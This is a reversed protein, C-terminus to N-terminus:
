IENPAYFTADVVNMYNKPVAILTIGPNSYESTDKLNVM